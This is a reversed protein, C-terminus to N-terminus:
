FENQDGATLRNEDIHPSTWEQVPKGKVSGHHEHTVSRNNQVLVQLLLRVRCTQGPILKQLLFLLLLLLLLVRGNACDCSTEKPLCKAHATNGMCRCGRLLPGQQAGQPVGAACRLTWSVDVKM